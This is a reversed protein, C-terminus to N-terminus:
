NQRCNKIHRAEVMAKTAAQSRNSKGSIRRNKWFNHESRTEVSMSSQSYLTTGTARERRCSEEQSTVTKSIASDANSIWPPLLLFQFLNPATPPILLRCLSITSTTVFAICNKGRFEFLQQRRRVIFSYAPRCSKNKYERFRRRGGVHSNGYLGQSNKESYNQVRFNFCQLGAM